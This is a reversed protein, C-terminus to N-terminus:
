RYFIIRSGDRDTTIPNARTLSRVEAHFGLCRLILDFVL